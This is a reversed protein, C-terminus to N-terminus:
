VPGPHTKDASRSTLNQAYSSYAPRARCASGSLCPLLQESTVQRTILLMNSSCMMSHRQAVHLRISANHILPLAPPVEAM